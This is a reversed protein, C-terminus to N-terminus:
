IYYQPPIAALFLGDQLLRVRQITVLSCGTYGAMLERQHLRVVTFGTGYYIFLLFISVFVLVLVNICRVRAIKIMAIINNAANGTIGALATLKFMVLTAVPVQSAVAQGFVSREPVIVTVAPFAFTAPVPVANRVSSLTPLIRLVVPFM